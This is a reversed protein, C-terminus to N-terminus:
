KIFMMTHFKQSMKKFFFIGRIKKWLSREHARHVETQRPLHLARATASSLPSPTPQFQPSVITIIFTM